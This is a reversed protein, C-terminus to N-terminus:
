PGQRAPWGAGASGMSHGFLAYPVDLEEMIASALADVLPELRAICPERMRAGHGPLEVACIDVDDGLLGRWPEYIWAAGGVYPLCFLRVAPTSRRPPGAIWGGARRAPAHAAAPNM